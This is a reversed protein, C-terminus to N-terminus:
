VVALRCIGYVITGVKDDMVNFDNPPLNIIKTNDKIATGSIRARFALEEEIM